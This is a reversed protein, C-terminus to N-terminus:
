ILASSRNAAPSFGIGSLALLRRIMVLNSNVLVSSRGLLSSAPGSRRKSKLRAPCHPLPRRYIRTEPCDPSDHFLVLAAGGFMVFNDPFAAFIAAASEEMLVLIEAEFKRFGLETYKRVRQEINM